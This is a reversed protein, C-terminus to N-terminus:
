SRRASGAAALMCGIEAKAHSAIRCHAGSGDRLANGALVEFAADTREGVRREGREGAVEVRELRLRGRVACSLRAM